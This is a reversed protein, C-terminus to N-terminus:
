KLTKITTVMARPIMFSNAVHADFYSSSIMLYEVGNSDTKDKILFGVTTIQPIDTEQEVEVWTGLDHADGWTV